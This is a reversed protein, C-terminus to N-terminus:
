IGFELIKDTYKKLSEYNHSVVLMTRKQTRFVEIADYCKKRFEEDGVALIEDFLYIDANSHIAVSFALRLYMGSSYKKVPMDIFDRIGSFDIIQDLKKKIERISMGLITGNMFINERGTLDPHFGAGIEILPAVKGNVKITGNDPYTVRAILKLITSKGCGNPGYLGISEGKKVNLNFDKLVWFEDRKLSDSNYKKKFTNVIDERLTHYSRVSKSYKKWVDQMVIIEEQSM